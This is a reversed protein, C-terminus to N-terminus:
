FPPQLEKIESRLQANTAVLQKILAATGPDAIEVIRVVDGATDTPVEIIHPATTSIHTSM